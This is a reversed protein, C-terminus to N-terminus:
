RWFSSWGEVWCHHGGIILIGASLVCCAGFFKSSFDKGKTFAVLAGGLLVIALLFNIPPLYEQCGM